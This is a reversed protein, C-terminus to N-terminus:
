QAFYGELSEGSSNKLDWNSDSNHWTWGKAIPKGTLANALQFWVIRAPPKGSFSYHRNQPPIEIQWGNTTSQAIIFPFPTKTFQAFVSGDPKTALLLEGAIEPAKKGPKWVAQGQRITWGPESLDAKLLPRMTLCGCLTILLLWGFVNSFYKEYPSVLNKLGAFLQPRLFFKFM